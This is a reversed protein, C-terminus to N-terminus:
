YELPLAVRRGDRASLYTAILLELSRLGERGDTAPPAEGRLARIVNDYYGVHGHGYVSSTEYSAQDVGLDDPDSDAFSWHEIRNVALGGVKVTGREGIITISGELNQPYTLMTVAVTGLAGGRWRVNAVRTDEVQIHRALTATYAHVSEVPCVLWDLLDVYHSAQNMFAGGDFEWTGRWGASDYYEQPRNWFVNVAVLYVRGFRGHDMARKVLQLTPNLRNQKVVFLHVGAADCAHVMEKGDQWRTAMPKETVVHRGAAACRVAQEAHIGSPTALVVCDPSSGALLADLSGFGPAGTRAVARELAAGEVDCAAVLEARGAHHEVAEFHREAIRGCGVLAFRVPRDAPLPTTAVIM